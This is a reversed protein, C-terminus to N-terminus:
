KPKWDREAQPPCAPAVKEGSLSVTPAPLIQQKHKLKKISRRSHRRALFLTPFRLFENDKVFTTRQVYWFHNTSRVVERKTEVLHGYFLAKAAKPKQFFPENL